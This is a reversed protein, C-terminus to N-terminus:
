YYCDDTRAPWHDLVADPNGSKTPAVLRYDSTTRLLDHLAGTIALPKDNAKDFIRNAGAELAQEIFAPLCAATLVIVPLNYYEDMARIARLVELGSIKPLMLDLMVADPRFEVLRELGDAGDRALEVIFDHAELFRKYVTGVILDDEIILIKKVQGKRCDANAARINLSNENKPSFLARGARM